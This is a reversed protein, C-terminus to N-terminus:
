TTLFKVVPQVSDTIDALQLQNRGSQKALYLARDAAIIMMDPTLDMDPVIAVIGLSVTVFKKVPSAETQIDMERIRALIRNGVLVAGIRDTDPLIVAFEEGGYRSVLDTARKVSGQLAGAIKKLCEDGALHGYTDNYLKFYDVDLLIFAISKQERKARQLERELFGNFYRRNAINTLGDQLSILNLRENLLTLEQTRESVKQELEAYAQHLKEKAQKQETIDRVAGDICFVGRESDFHKVVMISCWLLAGDRRRLRIERNKVMHVQEVAAHIADFEEPSWFHTALPASLLEEASDCGLMSVLSPNAYTIRPQDDIIERYVGICIHEVLSRHKAESAQLATTRARLEYVMDNFTAALQGIEDQTTVQSKVDMNGDALRKITKAINALPTTAMKAVVIGILGAFGASLLAIMLMTKKITNVEAVADVLPQQVILGWGTRPIYSYAALKKQGEYDYAVVGTQKNIVAKVPPLHSIEEQQQLKTEDPHLLLQGDADVLCAYGAKGLRINNIKETVTHLEVDAILVGVIQQKEDKIPEAIVISPHGSSRSILPASVVAEGSQMIAQYYPRDLYTISLDPMQEDSRAIQNGANDAVVVIHIDKDADTIFKLVDRRDSRMTKIEATDAAIHLMKIKEDFLQDIDEAMQETLVRNHEFIMGTMIKEGQYGAVAVTVMLPFITMCVFCFILKKQLSQRNWLSFM